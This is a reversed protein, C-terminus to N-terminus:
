VFYYHVYATFNGSKKPTPTYHKQSIKMTKKPAKMMTILRWLQTDTSEILKDFQIIRYDFQEQSLCRGALQHIKGNMEEGVIEVAEELPIKDSSEQM